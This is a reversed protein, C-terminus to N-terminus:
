AEKVTFWEARDIEPFSKLRGSKPPWEIEFINSAVTDINIDKELSCNYVLKFAIEIIVAL